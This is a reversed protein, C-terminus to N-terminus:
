QQNEDNDERSKRWFYNLLVFILLLGTFLYWSIGRRMLYFTLIVLGLGTWPFLWHGGTKPIPSQQQQYEKKVEEAIGEMEARSLSVMDELADLTARTAEEYSKKGDRKRAQRLIRRRIEDQIEQDQCDDPLDKQKKKKFMM